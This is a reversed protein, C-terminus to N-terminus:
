IPKGDDSRRSQREYDHVLTAVMEAASAFKGSRVAAEIQSEVDESLHITM